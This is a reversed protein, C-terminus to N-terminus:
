WLQSIPKQLRYDDRRFKMGQQDSSGPIRYRDPMSLLTWPAIKAVESLYYQYEKRAELYRGLRELIAGRQGIQIANLKARPKRDLIQLAEQYRQQDWLYDVYDPLTEGPPVLLLLERFAQDARPDNMTGLAATYPDRALEWFKTQKLKQFFMDLGTRDDLTAYGNAISSVLDAFDRTATGFGQLILLEAAKVYANISERLDAARHHWVYKQWWVDGLGQWAHRSTPYLTTARIRVALAENLLPAPDFDPEGPLTSHQIRRWAKRVKDETALLDKIAGAPEGIDPRFQTGQLLKQIEASQEAPTRDVESTTQGSLPQGGVIRPLLDGISMACVVTM